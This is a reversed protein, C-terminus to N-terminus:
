LRHSFIIGVEASYRALERFEEDSLELAERHKGYSAGFSYDNDYPKDYASKTFLGKNDRKQTKLATAGSLKAADVLKKATDIDGQHNNGIEAIVFCDTEDSIEVGEITLM